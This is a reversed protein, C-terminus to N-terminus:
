QTGGLLETLYTSQGKEEESRLDVGAIRRKSRHIYREPYMLGLEDDLATLRERDVATLNFTARYPCVICRSDTPPIDLGNKNLWNICSTADMRKEELLPYSYRIWWENPLYGARSGITLGVWLNVLQRRETLWRIYRRFPLLKWSSACSNPLQGENTHAPLKGLDPLKQPLTTYVSLGQERLWRTHETAFRITNLPEFGTNLVFVYEPRPLEGRASMVAMTWSAPSWDLLLVNTANKTAHNM